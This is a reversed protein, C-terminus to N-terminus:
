RFGLFVERYAHRKNSIETLIKAQLALADEDRPNERLAQEVHTLAEEYEGRNYFRESIKYNESTACGAVFVIIAGLLFYKMRHLGM